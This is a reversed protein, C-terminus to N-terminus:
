SKKEKNYSMIALHMEVWPCWLLNSCFFFGLSTFSKIFSSRHQCTMKDILLFIYTRTVIFWRSKKALSLILWPTKGLKQIITQGLFFRAFNAFISKTAFSYKKVTWKFIIDFHELIVSLMLVVNINLLRKRKILTTSRIQDRSTVRITSHIEPINAFNSVYVDIILTFTSSIKTQKNEKCFILSHTDFFFM